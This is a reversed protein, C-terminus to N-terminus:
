LQPGDSPRRRVIESRLGPGCFTVQLKQRKVLSAEEFGSWEKDNLAEWHPKVALFFDNIESATQKDFYDGRRVDLGLNSEGGGRQVLAFYSGLYIAVALLILLGLKLIAHMTVGGLVSNSGFHHASVHLAGSRAQEYLFRIM